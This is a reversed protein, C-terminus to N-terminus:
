IKTSVICRDNNALDKKISNIYFGKKKLLNIVRNKQDFGIELVLKGNKKILESSKNIVKITETLGDIGGNLAIKPEFNAVDRELYKIKHKNIYPPNSVILDYKGNKFKDVNTKFLKLRSNINLNKANIKSINLCEKSVDIGTGYYNKREKLISLLICGSGVGIDLISLKKRLKTLNLVCEVIIETDPRPILTDETVYFESKWFFKKNILHAIPKRFSRKFILRKFNIFNKKNIKKKLNLIVYKRDKNIAKAILVETDLGATLISKDKLIKTGKIIASQIDM